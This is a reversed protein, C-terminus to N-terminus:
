VHARGIQERFFLIYGLLKLVTHRLSENDDLGITVKHPLARHRDESRLDFVHKASM